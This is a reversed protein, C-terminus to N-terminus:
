LIPPRLRKALTVGLRHLLELNPPAQPCHITFIASGFIEISPPSCHTCDSCGLGNCLSSTADSTSAEEHCPHASKTSVHESAAHDIAAISTTSSVSGQFSHEMAMIPKGVLLLILILAVVTTHRALM